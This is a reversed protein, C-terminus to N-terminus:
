CSFRRWCKRFPIQDGHFLRRLLMEKSPVFLRSSSALRDIRGFACQKTAKFQAAAQVYIEGAEEFCSDSFWSMMSETKKKAEAM